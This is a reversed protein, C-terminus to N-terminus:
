GAQSMEHTIHAYHVRLGGSSVIIASHESAKSQQLNLRLQPSRHPIGQSCIGADAVLLQQAVQVPDRQLLVLLHSVVPNTLQASPLSAAHSRAQRSKNKRM